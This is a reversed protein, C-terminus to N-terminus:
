FTKNHYNNLKKSLKLSKGKAEMNNNFSKNNNQQNNILKSYDVGSLMNPIVSKIPINKHM